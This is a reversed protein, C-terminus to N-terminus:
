PSSGGPRTLRVEVGIDLQTWARDATLVPAQFERGLAICARDALSLGAARTAARLGAAEWARREDFAVVRLQLDTITARADREGMGDELLRTAVEALNLASVLCRESRLVPTVLETGPEDFLWVLLASADLVAEAM